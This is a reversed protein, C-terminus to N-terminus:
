TYLGGEDLHREAEADRQAKAELERLTRHFWDRDVSCMQEHRRRGFGVAARGILVRHNDVVLAQGPQLGIQVTRAPSSVEKTFSILARYYPDVLRPEIDLPARAAEDFRIGSVRYQRDVSVVPAHTIFHEDYPSRFAVNTQSLLDFADPDDDQLDRALAYGDILSLDSGTPAAELCHLIMIGDPDTRWAGHTRPEVIGDSSELDSDVILDHIAGSEDARLPGILTALLEIGSGDLPVDDVVAVGWRQISKLLRLHDDSAHEPLPVHDLEHGARFNEVVDTAVLEHPEHSHARLWDFDFASEHGDSFEVGLDGDDNRDAFMVFVDPNLDALLAAQDASCNDRLWLSHFRSKAGDSWRILVGTDTVEITSAATELEM